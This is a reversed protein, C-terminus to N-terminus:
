FVTEAKLPLQMATICDILYNELEAWSTWKYGWNNLPLYILLFKFDNTRELKAKM